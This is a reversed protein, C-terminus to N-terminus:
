RLKLSVRRHRLSRKAARRKYRMRQPRQRPPPLVEEYEEGGGLGAAEVLDGPQTYDAGRDPGAFDVREEAQRGIGSGDACGDESCEDAGSEDADDEDAGDEDTLDPEPEADVWGQIAYDGDEDAQRAAVVDGAADPTRTARRVRPWLSKRFSLRSLRMLADVDEEIRKDTEALEQKKKGEATETPVKGGDGGASDDDGSDDVDDGVGFDSGAGDGLDGDAPVGDADRIGGEATGPDRNWYDEAFGFGDENVAHQALADGDVLAQDEAVGAEGADAGDGGQVEYMEDGEEIVDMEGGVNTGVGAGDQAGAQREDAEHHDGEAPTDEPVRGAAGASGRRSQVVLDDVSGFHVADSDTVVRERMIGGATDGRGGQVLTGRLDEAGTGAWGTAPPQQWSPPQMLKRSASGHSQTSHQAFSHRNVLLRQLQLLGQVAAAGTM